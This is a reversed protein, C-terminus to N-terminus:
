ADAAPETEVRRQEILARAAELPVGLRELLAEGLQLGAELVEPIAHTAGCAMLRLADTEDNARVLIPVRSSASRAARVAREAAVRDNITVVVAAAREVGLRHLMAARSADGKFIPVGADHMEAVREAANDLAVYAVHQADLLDGLLRGTRGYGAIIVHDDLDVEADTRSGEQGDPFALTLRPAARALLPNVLMTAGVVLLMFVRTADPLLALEAALAVVVFAFEGGPALLLGMEAATRWGIGFGRALLAVITAKIAILGVISLGLWVPREAVEALDIGMGISMFFLGLLLGKFPDINVEIEHRFETDALVLGALFAGLAASLGAAHTTSATAVIVLLTIALFAEPSHLSGVFRFAPRIVFRGVILIAAVALAANGLARVLPALLSEGAGSAVAGLLFLIPVVALDQALLIAFTARGLPTGFRHQETLIQMVMATSSLALGAGLVLAASPQNGFAFAIGGIILTSVVIQLTGLGFVLRRM